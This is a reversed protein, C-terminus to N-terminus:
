LSPHRLVQTVQSDILGARPQKDKKLYGRLKRLILIWLFTGVLACVIMGVHFCMFSLAFSDRKIFCWMGDFEIADWSPVLPLSACVFSVVLIVPISTQWRM